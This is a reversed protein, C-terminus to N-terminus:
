PQPLAKLLGHELAYAAGQYYSIAQNSVDPNASAPLIEDKNLPDRHIEVQQQPSLIVLQNDQYLGMRQYTAILARQAMNEPVRLMDRGLFRSTYDMNLLGLITPPVDMQSVIHDVIQPKVHKPAYIILPIHYREVPVATKGASGACHDASIVFVTNDFWPKKRAEKIFNAIAWDTYKVASSWKKQPADIRGEPFTYPRHNSTTMIISFFPKNAAFSKDAERMARLYLYEDAVGWVNAFGQEDETFDTRDVVHYGNGAFFANMNDFYGYGGYIFKSDYGKANLVSALSFLGGNNPRRVVASGPTPPIGLTLAELGRVTRNGTAYYQKFFLSEQSLQDLHPTINETGGLSRLYEGSLSEVSILLVNLKREPEPVDVRRTVDFLANPNVLTEHALVVNQKLLTSALEPKIHQYFTEYDLENHRFAYFFQFAGNRALEEVYMNTSLAPVSDGRLGGAVAVILGTVVATLVRLKLTLPHNISRQIQQRALWVLGAAVLAITSLIPVVPYSESINGTVERRYVLYDVAIFNFRVNFEDWFLWEAVLVFGLAFLYSWAVALTAKHGWASQRWREPILLGVLSFFGYVYAAVVSDFLLGRLFLGAYESFDVPIQDISRAFLVCRLLTFAVITIVALLAPLSLRWLTRNLQLM